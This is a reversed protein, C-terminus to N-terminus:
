EFKLFLVPILSGTEELFASFNSFGLHHSGGMYWRMAMLSAVPIGHECGM